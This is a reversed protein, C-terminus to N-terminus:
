LLKEVACNLARQMEPTPTPNNQMVDKVLLKLVARPLEILIPKALAAAPAKQVKSSSKKYVRKTGNTKTPNSDPNIIYRMSRKNGITLLRNERRLHKLALVLTPHPNPRGEEKPIKMERIIDVAYVPKGLNKVTNYIDEKLQDTVVKKSM